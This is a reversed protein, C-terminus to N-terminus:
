KNDVLGKLFFYKKEESLITAKINKIKLKKDDAELSKPLQKSFDNLFYKLAQSMVKLTDDDIESNPPLAYLVKEKLINLPIEIDNKM